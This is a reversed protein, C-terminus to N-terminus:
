GFPPSPELMAQKHSATVVAPILVASNKLWVHIASQAGIFRFAINLACESCVDNQYTKYLTKSSAKGM